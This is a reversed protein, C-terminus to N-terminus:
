KKKNKFETKKEMILLALGISAPTGKELSSKAVQTLIEDVAVQDDSTLSISKTETPQPTSNLNLFQRLRSVLREM